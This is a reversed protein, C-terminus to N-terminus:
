YLVIHTHKYFSNAQVEEKKDLAQGGGVPPSLGLRPIWLCFFFFLKWGVHRINCEAGPDIVHGCHFGAGGGEGMIEM